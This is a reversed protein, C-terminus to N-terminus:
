DWPNDRPRLFCEVTPASLRFLFIFSVGALPLREKLKTEKKLVRQTKNKILASRSLTELSLCFFAAKETFSRTKKNEKTEREGSVVSMKKISSLQVAVSKPAPVIEPDQRLYCRRM